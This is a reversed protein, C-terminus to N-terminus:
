RERQVITLVPQDLAGLRALFDAVLDPDVAVVVQRNGTAAWSESSPPVDVVTVAELALPSDDASASRRAADDLPPVHRPRLRPEIGVVPM